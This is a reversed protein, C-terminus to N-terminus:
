EYLINDSKFELPKILNTSIPLPVTEKNKVLGATRDPGSQPIIDNQENDIDDEKEPYVNDFKISKERIPTNGRSMTKIINNSVKKIRSSILEDERGQEIVKKRHEMYKKLGQTGGIQVISAMCLILTPDM